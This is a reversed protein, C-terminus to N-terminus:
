GGQTIAQASVECTSGTPDATAWITALRGGPNIDRGIQFDFSRIGGPTKSPDSIPEVGGDPVVVTTMEGSGGYTRLPGGSQNHFIFWTARERAGAILPHPRDFCQWGLRGFGPVVLATVSGDDASDYPRTSRQWYARPYRADTEGETYYRSDSDACSVNGDAGIGTVKQSGSCSTTAGRRQFATSDTGDLTDADGVKEGAKYFDDPGFGELSTADVGALTGEAIDQGTLAGGSANSVDLGTLAGTTSDNAVDASKVAEGNRLDRSLLSNDVVEASGITAAAYSTGGLAVFLALYAVLNQRVHTAFKGLM